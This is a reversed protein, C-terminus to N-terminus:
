SRATRLAALVDGAGTRSEAPATSRIGAEHGAEGSNSCISSTARQTATLSPLLERLATATRTLQRKQAIRYHLAVRLCGSPDDTEGRQLRALEDRDSSLASPFYNLTGQVCALLSTCLLESSPDGEVGASLLSRLKAVASVDLADSGLSLQETCATPAVTTLAAPLHRTSVHLVETGPQNSSLHEAFGYELLLNANGGETQYEITVEDGAALDRGALMVVGGDDTVVLSPPTDEEGSAEVGAEVGAEMRAAGGVSGSRRSRHNCLDFVPLLLMRRVGSQRDSVDLARSRVISEAWDFARRRDDQYPYWDVLRSELKSFTRECHERQSAARAELSESQLLRLDKASWDRLLPVSLPLTALYPKLPSVSLKQQEALLKLILREFVKLDMGDSAESANDRDHDDAEIYCGPPLVLLPEGKIMPGTVFLGRVGTDADVGDALVDAVLGGAQQVFNVLAQFNESRPQSSHMLGAHAGLLTTLLLAMVVHPKM